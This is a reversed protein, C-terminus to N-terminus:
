QAHIHSTLATGPSAPTLVTPNVTLLLCSLCLAHHEGSKKEVHRNRRGTPRSARESNTFSFSCQVLVARTTRAPQPGRLSKSSSHLFCQMTGTNSHKAQSKPSTSDARLTTSLVVLRLHCAPELYCQIRHLLLSVAAAAAPTAAGCLFSRSLPRLV